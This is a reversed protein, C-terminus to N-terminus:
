RWDNSEMKELTLALVDLVKINPVSTRVNNRVSVRLTVQLVPLFVKTNDRSLRCAFLEIALMLQGTITFLLPDVTINYSTSVM